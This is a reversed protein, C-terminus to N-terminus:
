IQLTLKLVIAHCIISGHVFGDYIYYLAHHLTMPNCVFVGDPLPSQILSM